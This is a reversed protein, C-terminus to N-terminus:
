TLIIDTGYCYCMGLDTGKMLGSVKVDLGARSLHGFIENTDVYLGKRLHNIGRQRARTSYGREPRKSSQSRTYRSQTITLFNPALFRPYPLRIPNFLTAPANGRRLKTQSAVVRLPVGSLLELVHSSDCPFCTGCEDRRFPSRPRPMRAVVSYCYTYFNPITAAHLFGTTRM